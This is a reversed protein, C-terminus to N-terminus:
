LRRFWPLYLMDLSNLVFPSPATGTHKKFSIQNAVVSDLIRIDMHQIYEDTHLCVQKAREIINNITGKKPNVQLNM